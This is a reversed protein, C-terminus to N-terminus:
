PRPNQKDPNRSAVQEAGKKFPEILGKSEAYTELREGLGDPDEYYEGDIQDLRVYWDPKETTNKPLHRMAKYRERQGTPIPREEFLIEKAEKLLKLTEFAELELLGDLVRSYYEGSSNSFFQEIGGNYTEGDLICVVFYTKEEESLGAFGSDTKYVRNVLSTWLERVPDYEKQKRYYEKSKEINERIGQKCPM